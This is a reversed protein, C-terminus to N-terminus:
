VYEIEYKWGDCQQAKMGVLEAPFKPHKRIYEKAAKGSLFEPSPHISIRKRRREAVELAQCMRWIPVPVEFGNQSVAEIITGVYEDFEESYRGTGYGQLYELLIEKGRTYKTTVQQIDETGIIYM